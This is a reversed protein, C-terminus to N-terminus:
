TKKGEEKGSGGIGFWGLFGQKMGKLQEEKMKEEEAAQEKLWKEGNERIQQDLWEYQKLGRERVQDQWMKGQEFAETYSTEGEMQAQPITKIGLAGTLLTAGSRKPRKSKEAALQRQFKERAQQERIAFETPIHKGDFSALAKRVDPFQM